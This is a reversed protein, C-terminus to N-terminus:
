NRGEKVHRIDKLIQKKGIEKRDRIYTNKVKQLDAGNISLKEKKRDKEGFEFKYLSILSTYLKYCM